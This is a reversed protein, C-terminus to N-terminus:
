LDTTTTTAVCFKGGQSNAEFRGIAGSMGEYDLLASDSPNVEIMLTCEGGNASGVLPPLVVDFSDNEGDEDLIKKGANNSASKIKSGKKKLATLKTKETDSDDSISASSISYDDGLAAKGKKASLSMERHM